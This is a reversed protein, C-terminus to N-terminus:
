ASAEIAAGKVQLTGFMSHTGVSRRSPLADRAVEKWIALNMM